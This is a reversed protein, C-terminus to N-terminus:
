AQAALAQFTNGLKAEAQELLERQEAISRTLERAQTESEVRQADAQRLQVELREARAAAEAKIDTVQQRLAAATAESAGARRAAWLWGMAAGLAGGVLTGAALMTLEM